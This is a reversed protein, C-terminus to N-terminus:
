EESSHNEVCITGAVQKDCWLRDGHLSSSPPEKAQKKEGKGFRMEAISELTGIEVHIFSVGHFSHLLAVRDREIAPALSVQSDGTRVM